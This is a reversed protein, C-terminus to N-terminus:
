MFRRLLGDMGDRVVVDAYREYLPKREAFIAGLTKDQGGVVGRAALDGLRLVLEDLPVDLYVVVGLEQLRAMADASFVVSGGTAIVTRTCALAAVIREEVLAFGDVGLTDILEALTRGTEAEIVADTDLFALGLAEALPRGLTTKGAGPM